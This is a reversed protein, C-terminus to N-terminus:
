AASTAPFMLQIRTSREEESLRFSYAEALELHRERVRRDPARLAALREQQARVALYDADSM